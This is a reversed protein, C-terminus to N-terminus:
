NNHLPASELAGVAIPAISLETTVWPTSVPTEDFSAVFRVDRASSVFQRFAEVDEAAIIVEPLPPEASPKPSTASRLTPVVVSRVVGVGNDPTSPQINTPSPRLGATVPMEQPTSSTIEAPSPERRADERPLSVALVVLTACTIAAAPKLWGMTISPRPSEAIKTRVRAVFEPSPAASLVAHLERDLDLDDM